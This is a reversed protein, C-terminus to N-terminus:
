LANMVGNAVRAWLGGSGNSLAQMGSILAIGVLAAILGYEM